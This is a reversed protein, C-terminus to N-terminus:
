DVQTIPAYRVRTGALLVTFGIAGTGTITHVTRYRRFPTAINVRQIGQSANSAQAFVAVNDTWSDTSRNRGQVRVDLTVGAAITTPVLIAAAALPMSTINKETGNVNAEAAAVHRAQLPTVALLGNLVDQTLM